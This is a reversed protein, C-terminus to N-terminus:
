TWAGCVLALPALMPPGPPAAAAPKMHYVWAKELRAVNGPTIQTLPSYRMGGPDHGYTPWENATAAPRTGARQASAAYGVSGAACVAVALGRTIRFM